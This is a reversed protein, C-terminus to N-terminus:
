ENVAVIRYDDRIEEVDMDDATVAAKVDAFLKDLAVQAQHISEFRTPIIESDTADTWGADDWGYFYRLEIKYRMICVFCLFVTNDLLRM